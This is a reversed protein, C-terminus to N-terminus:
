STQDGLLHHPFHLVVESNLELNWQECHLLYLHFEWANLELVSDSLLNIFSFNWMASTYGIKEMLFSSDPFKSSRSM